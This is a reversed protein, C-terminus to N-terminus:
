MGMGTGGGVQLYVEALAPMAELRAWEAPVEGTLQNGQLSLVRVGPMSANTGWARPVQGTLLNNQSRRCVSLLPPPPLGLTPKPLPGDGCASACHAHIATFLALLCSARCVSRGHLQHM